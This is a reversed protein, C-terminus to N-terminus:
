SYDADTGKVYWGNEMERVYFFDDTLSIKFTEEAGDEIVVEPMVPLTGVGKIEQMDHFGSNFEVTPEKREVPIKEISCIYKRNVIKGDPSKEFIRIVGNEGCEYSLPKESLHKIRIDM